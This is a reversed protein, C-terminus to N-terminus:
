PCGPTKTVVGGTQTIVCGSTVSVSSGAGTVYVSGQNVSVSDAGISVSVSGQAGASASASASGQAGPDVLGQTTADAAVQQQSTQDVTVTQDVAQTSTQVSADAPTSPLQQQDANTALAGGCGCPGDSKSLLQYRVAPRTSVAHKRSVTSVRERAHAKRHRRVIPKATPVPVKPAPATVTRGPLTVTQTGAAVEPCSGRFVCVKGFLAVSVVTGSLLAFSCFAGIRLWRSGRMREQGDM